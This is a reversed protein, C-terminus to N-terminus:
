RRLLVKSMRILSSGCSIEVSLFSMGGTSIGIQARGFVSIVSVSTMCFCDAECAINAALLSTIWLVLDPHSIFFFVLPIKFVM